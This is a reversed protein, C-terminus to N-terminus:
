WWYIIYWNSIHYSIRRHNQERIPNSVRKKKSMKKDYVLLIKDKNTQTQKPSTKNNIDPNTNATQTKDIKSKSMKRKKNLKYNPKAIVENNRNHKTHQHSHRKASHKRKHKKKYTHSHLIYLLTRELYSRPSINVAKTNTQKPKKKMASNAVKQQQKGDSLCHSPRTEFYTKLRALRTWETRLQTHTTNKKRHDSSINQTERQARKWQTAQYGRQFPIGVKILRQDIGSGSKCETRDPKEGIILM